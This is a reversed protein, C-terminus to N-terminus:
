HLVGILYENGSLDTMQQLDNGDAGITWLNGNNQGNEQGEWVIRSGGAYYIPRYPPNTDPSLDLFVLEPQSGTTLNLRYIGRVGDYTASFIIDEGSPSLDMNLYGGQPMLMFDEGVGTEPQLFSLMYHSQYGGGPLDESWKKWLVIEGTLDNVAYDRVTEDQEYVSTLFDLEGTEIDYAVIDLNRISNFPEPQSPESRLFYLTRSDPSFKPTFDEHTSVPIMIHETGDCSQIHMDGGGNVLELYAIWEGNPSIAVGGSGPVQGGISQQFSGDFNIVYYSYGKAFIIKPQDFCGRSFPTIIFDYSSTAVINDAGDLVRVTIREDGEIRGFCSISNGRESPNALENVGDTLEGNGSSLSWRYTLASANGEFGSLQATFTARNNIALKDDNIGSTSIEVSIGEEKDEDESCSLTTLLLFTLLLKGFKM